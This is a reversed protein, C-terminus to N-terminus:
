DYIQAPMGQAIPNDKDVVNYDLTATWTYNVEGHKKGAGVLTAMDAPDSSCVDSSWDCLSSTHRRRGSFFFLVVDYEGSLCAMVQKVRPHAARAHRELAELISVKAGDDFQSM